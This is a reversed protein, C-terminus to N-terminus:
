GSRVIWPDDQWRDRLEHDMQALLRAWAEPPLFRAVHGQAARDKVFDPDSALSAIGPLLRHVVSDPASAPLMFGRLPLALLEGGPVALTSVDPLLPNPTRGTVGLAALKGDRLAPVADALPLLAAVAHGAAAAQRAAIASAFPLLALGTRAAIRRAALHAASGAAPTALPRGDDAIRAADIPADPRGVLVLAEEQIAALPRLGGLPSAAGTEIARALLFPAAFIAIQWPAPEAAAVEELAALGGRGPLNRVTVPAHRWHRELFPAAARAWLDATSGLRSGVVLVVPSPRSALAPM